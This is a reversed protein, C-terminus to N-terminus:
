VTVTTGKHIETLRDGLVTKLIAYAKQGTCHGTWYADVPLRLMTHALDMMEPKSDAMTNLTPIGGLHFGGVVGKIRDDPFRQAVTQIMNLAGSHSCGTFVVLGDADRLALVLEHSFSDHIYGSPQKLYLYRNGKPREHQRVIDTFIYAGPLVETFRDVYAFRDQYRDLLGEELGNFRNIVLLARFYSKGDPPRRLYVKAHDNVAFFAPLGGGHDSHHHSLVVLDVDSLEVGLRQANQVLAGKAGTDFLIKKNRHEIYLALGWESVLDSRQDALDNEILTTIQM